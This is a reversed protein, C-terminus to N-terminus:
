EVELVKVEFNLEKGALPHNFDLVITDPKIEAVVPQLVNGEKDQTMLQAGVEHAEAPISAKPVEAFAEDNREGYGESPQVTVSKTDGKKLGILKSELGPIIQSEGHTYELPAQGKNSDVQEGDVTLTYEISVKTGKKIGM